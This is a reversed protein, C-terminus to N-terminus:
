FDKRWYLGGLIKEVFNGVVMRRGERNIERDAATFGPVANEIKEAYAKRDADSMYHDWIEKLEGSDLFFGGCSYCEDVDIEKDRQFKHTQMQIACRPCQIPARPATDVRPSSLAAEIALGMGEGPQDLSELEKHAFWIGKCRNKVSM